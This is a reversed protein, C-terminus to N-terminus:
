RRLRACATSSQALEGEIGYRVAVWQVWVATRADVRLRKTTRTLGSGVVAFRSSAPPRLCRKATAVPVTYSTAATVPLATTRLGRRTPIVRVQRVASLPPVTVPAEASFDSMLDGRVARM